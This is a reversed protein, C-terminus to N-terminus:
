APVAIDQRRKIEALTENHMPLIFYFTSGKGVTSEFALNGGHIEALRRSIPLGLGTGGGKKLGVETQRFTEFIAEYDEPAVGPGTDTVAFKMIDGEQKLSITVSGEDTFKCANSVLNLMIQRVRRRDCAVLPLDPQLDLVLNVSKEALATEAVDAVAQFEKSLDVDDEVFLKLQGAEIKSIDLLDNILTLLYKGNSGVKELMDVQENNVEGLMGTSVFKTFNLIANLPTRLEHSMNALFQSKLQNAAEAQKRAEDLAANTAELTINQNALQLRQRNIFLTSRDIYWFFLIAGVGVLGVAVQGFIFSGRSATIFEDVKYYMVYAVQEDKINRVPLFSTTYDTGEVTVMLSFAEGTALRSAFDPHARLAANIAEIQEWKLGQSRYNEVVLRDYAYEDTLDSVVYNGQLDEFVTTQVIDSRLMFNTAGPMLDTLDQQIANFSVSVEVSGIHRGGYLLPFVYRFGNYVRGEEFGITPTRTANTQVITYRVDTLDDGYKDPQHFRLFSVNDPLHFHLHRLNMSELRNYDEILMSYLETRILDQEEEDARYARSYLRLVEPQNVIESFILRASREYGILTENYAVELNNSLNEYHLSEVEAEQQKFFSQMFVILLLVIPIMYIPRFRLANGVVKPPTNTSPLKSVLQM